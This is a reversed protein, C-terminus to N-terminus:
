DSLEDAETDSSHGYLPAYEEIFLWGMSKEGTSGSLYCRRMGATFWELCDPDVQEDVPVEAVLKPIRAIAHLSSHLWGGRWDPRRHEPRISQWDLNMFLVIKANLVIEVVDLHLHQAAFRLLLLDCCPGKPVIRLRKIFGLAQTRIYRSPMRLNGSDHKSGDRFDDEPSMDSRGGNADRQGLIELLKSDYKTLPSTITSCSYLVREAEHHIQRCTLFLPVVNQIEPDFWPRISPHIRRDSPLLVLEYIKDRLKRTLDLFRFSGSAYQKISPHEDAALLGPRQPQVMSAKLWPLFDEAFEPYGYIDGGGIVPIDFYTLGKIKLIAKVWEKDKKCTDIWGPSENTDGPGWLKLSRLNPCERALFEMFATWDFLSITAGYRESYCKREVRRILRRNRKPLKEFFEYSQKVPDAWDQYMLNWSSTGYLIAEGEHQLKRCTLIVAIDFTAKESGLIEYPFIQRVATPALGLRDQDFAEPEKEGPFLVEGLIQDRVESPLGLLLCSRSSSSM